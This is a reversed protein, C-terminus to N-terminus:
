QLIENGGLSQEAFVTNVSLVDLKKSTVVHKSMKLEYVFSVRKVVYREGNILLYEGCSVSPDLYFTGLENRREINKKRGNRGVAGDCTYSELSVTEFIQYPLSDRNDRQKKLEGSRKIRVAIGNEDAWPAMEYEENDHDWSNGYDGEAGISPQWSGWIAM